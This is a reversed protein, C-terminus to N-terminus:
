ASLVQATEWQINTITKKFSELNTAKICIGDMLTLYPSQSLSSDATYAIIKPDNRDNQARIERTAQIGDTGPMSIDMIILDFIEKQAMEVANCGNEAVQINEKSMWLKTLFIKALNRDVENDDVILAKKDELLPKEKSVEM